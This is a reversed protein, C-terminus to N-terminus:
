KVLYPKRLCRRAAETMVRQDLTRGCAVQVWHKDFYALKEGHLRKPRTRFVSKKSGPALIRKEVVTKSGVLTSQEYSLNAVTQQLNSQTSTKFLSKAASDSRSVTFKPTDNTFVNDDLVLSKRATKKMTPQATKVKLPSEHDVTQNFDLPYLNISDLDDLDFSSFDDSFSFPPIDCFTSDNPCEDSDFFTASPCPDSANSMLATRSTDPIGESLSATSDLLWNLDDCESSDFFPLDLSLSTDAKDSHKHGARRRSIPTSTLSPPFLLPGSTDNEYGGIGSDEIDFPNEDFSLDKLIDCQPQKAVEESGTLTSTNLFRSPSFTLTKIPSNSQNVGSFKKARGDKMRGKLITPRFKGRKKMRRPMVNEKGPKESNSSRSQKVFYSTNTRKILTSTVNQQKEMINRISMVSESTVNFSQFSSIGHRSRSVSKQSCKSSHRKSKSRRTRSNRSSTKSEYITTTICAQGKLHSNVALETFDVFSDSFVGGGNPKNPKKSQYDTLSPSGDLLLYDQNFLPYSNYEM